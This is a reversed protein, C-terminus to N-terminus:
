EKRSASKDKENIDGLLPNNIVAYTKRSSGRYTVFPVGLRGAVSNVVLRDCARAADDFVLIVSTDFLSMYKIFGSRTAPPGDILIMDYKIGKLKERLVDADYWTTTPHNKIAKHEKLPAYIYTSNYEDIYEENHEISYMTYHKALQSTGWGSGLELITSGKPLVKRIFDYLGEDISGDGWQTEM